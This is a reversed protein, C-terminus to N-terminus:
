WQVGPYLSPIRFSRYDTSGPLTMQWVTQPSPSTTVEFIDAGGSSGALDFETNGNGLVEVNGAFNSYLTPPLIDHFQFTATMATEDIQLQQITTYSCVPADPEGCSVGSPFIRDDGNDMVNLSFVGATQPTVFVANHQAYFWDTPDVGGVLKFDGGQGLRWLVNGSGVGNQYDVKVIWNQHRMSVVFNGDTASYSVSNSHTWDPFMWPHRNVDFHDFENWTWVPTWSADLDVVVDGVVNTVGPYGPLDTFQQQTNALILTHGNPLLAFDHSYALLTINFGAKALAANLDTMSLERVTNGSLDFERMVNLPGPSAAPYSLPAIFALFHGNGLPKIPYLYSGPTRDAFPYSWIVNGLLDTALATSPLSGSFPNVLEVGPQATGTVGLTVPFRDPVGPPSAGTTFTHDIDSVQRGDSLTVNARMHYTTNARMGAVLMSAASADAVQISSTTLGYGTTEGFSVSWNGSTPLTLTYMAVVPNATPAVSGPQLMIAQGSLSVATGKVMGGLDLTATDANGSSTSVPAYIVILNCSAGGVLRTGCGGGALRFSHSGTIAPAISIPTPGTNTLSAVTKTIASGAIEPGFNFATASLTVSASHVNSLGTGACGALVFCM